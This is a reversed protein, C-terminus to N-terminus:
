WVWIRVHIEKKEPFWQVEGGLVEAIFRLPVLTRGQVIMPPVDLEVSDKKNITAIKSGVQLQITRDGTTIVIEKSAAIWDVKSGMAEAIFRLPVLTRGQVIMPPADLQLAQKDKYATRSGIQLTLLSQSRYRYATIVLLAQNGAFDVAVWRFTNKGLVLEGRYSGTGADNLAVNIGNVSLYAKPETRITMALASSLTHVIDEDPIIRELLPPQTDRYITREEELVNGSEDVVRFVFRNAGEKLMYTEAFVGNRGLTIRQDNIYLQAGISVSGQWELQNKNTIHGDKLNLIIFLQRYILMVSNSWSSQLQGDTALVVYRYTERERVNKDLYELDSLWLSSLPLSSDHRRSRYIRYFLPKTESTLVLKVGERESSAELTPSSWHKKELVRPKIHIQGLKQEGRYVPVSFHDMPGQPNLKILISTDFYHLESDKPIKPFPVPETLTSDFYFRQEVSAARFIMPNWHWDQLVVERRPSIVVAVTKVESRNELEMTLYFLYVGSDMEEPLTVMLRVFQGAVYREPLLWASIDPDEAMVSLNVIQRYFGYFYLDLEIEAESGSVLMPIEPLSEVHWRYPLGKSIPVVVTKELSSYELRSNESLPLGDCVLRYYHGPYLDRPGWSRWAEEVPEPEDEEVPEKIGSFIEVVTAPMWFSRLSLHWDFETFDDSVSIPHHEPQLDETRYNMTLPQDATLFQDLVMDEYAQKKFILGKISDQLSFFGWENTGALLENSHRDYIDVDRLANGFADVVKGHFNATVQSINVPIRLLSSPFESELHIYSIGPPIDDPITLYEVLNENENALRLPLLMRRIGQTEISFSIRVPTSPFVAVGINDGPEYSSKESEPVLWGQFPADIILPLDIQENSGTNQNIYRAETLAKSGAYEVMWRYMGEGLGSFSFQGKADTYGEAKTTGDWVWMRAHALPLDYLSNFLIGKFVHGGAQNKKVHMHHQHLQRQGDDKVLVTELIAEGRLDPIQFWLQQPTSPLLRRTDLLVSWEGQKLWTQASAPHSATVTTSTMEGAFCTAKEGKSLSVTTSFVLSPNIRIETTNSRTSLTGDSRVARVVYWYSRGTMFSDDVYTRDTILSYNLPVAHDLTPYRLSRYINYGTIQDQGETPPGWTLNIINKERIYRARLNTPADWESQIVHIQGEIKFFGESREGYILNISYPYAGAIVQNSPRLIIPVEVPKEGVTGITRNEFNLWSPGFGLQARVHRTEGKPSWLSITSHLPQGSSVIPNWVKEPISSLTGGTKLVEIKCSYWSNLGDGSAKIWVTYQGPPTSLSTKITFGIMAPAPKPEESTFEAYPPLSIAELTIRDSFNTFKEASFHYNSQDGQILTTKFPTISGDFTGRSLGTVQIVGKWEIHHFDNGLRLTLPYEGIPCHEPVILWILRKERLLSPITPPSVTLEAPGEIIKISINNLTGEKLSITLPIRKERREHTTVYIKPPNLEFEVHDSPLDIIVSSTIQGKSVEVGHKDAYMDDSTMVRVVHIGPPVDAIEYFGREDTYSEELTQLPLYVKVNKIPKGGLRVRGSIVGTQMNSILHFQYRAEGCLNEDIPVLSLDIKGLREKKTPRWFFRQIEDQRLQIGRMLSRTGFSDTLNLDAKMNIASRMYVTMTEGVEFVSGSPKNLWLDMDPLRYAQLCWEQFSTKEDLMVIKEIANSACSHTTRLKYPGPPLNVFTFYGEDETMERGPAPGSIIEVTAGELGAQHHDSCQLVRGHLSLTGSSKKQLVFSRRDTVISGSQKSVAKVSVVFDQVLPYVAPIQFHKELQALSEEHEAWVVTQQGMILEISVWSPDSTTVYVHLYADELVFREPVTRLRMDLDRAHLRIGLDPVSWATVFILFLVASILRKFM